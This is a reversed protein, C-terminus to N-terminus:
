MIRIRSFYETECAEEEKMQKRKSGSGLHPMSKRSGGDGVSGRSMAGGSNRVTESTGNVSSGAQSNPQPPSSSKPKIGSPKHTRLHTELQLKSTFSKACVECSYRSVKHKFEHVTMAQKNSFTQDCLNCKYPSVTYLTPSFLLTLPFQVDKKATIMFQIQTM